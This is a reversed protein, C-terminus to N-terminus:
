TCRVSARWFIVLRTAPTRCTRSVGTLAGSCRRALDQDVGVRADVIGHRDEVREFRRLEVDDPQGRHEAVGVRDTQVVLASFSSSIAPRM